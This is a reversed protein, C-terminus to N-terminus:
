RRNVGTGDFRHALQASIAGGIAGFILPFLLGVLLVSDSLVPSAELGDSEASFLFVGILTLPVSGLIITGGTLAGDQTTQVGVYRALLFGFLVWSLIPILHYVVSPMELTFGEDFAQSDTVYNITTGDLFAGFGLDDDSETVSIEVDALQANYYIWGASEILDDTFDDAEAAAVVVLTIIYGVLFSAAGFVAGQKLPLRDTIDRDTQTAM